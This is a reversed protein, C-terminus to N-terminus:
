DAVRQASRWPTWALAIGGSVGHDRKMLPSAANASGSLDELRAFAFFRLEPTIARSLSANLRWAVLGRRAAYAPRDPRTYEPAVGYWTSALRGDAVLAGAAVGGAWGSDGLRQERLLTPEFAMGKARLQSSADFVGRLPLDLRWRGSPDAAINWRLRPGAEVLTGLDPMGARAPVDHSKAGLGASFSLDLEWAPTRVTRLNIGGRDVRLIDGRYIFLPLALARKVSTEAGPYAPQTAAVGILGAEWLPQPGPQAMAGAGVGGLALAALGMRGAKRM